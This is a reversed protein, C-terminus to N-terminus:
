RSLHQFNRDALLREIEFVAYHEGHRSFASQVYRQVKPDLRVDAESTEGQWFHKMGFVERVVLGVQYRRNSVVLLKCDHRQLDINRGYLYGELDVVTVLNGHLNVLGLVWPQVGPVPTYEEMPVIEMVTAMPALLKDQEIRFLVGTWEQTGETRELTTVSRQKYKQETLKLLEFPTRMEM